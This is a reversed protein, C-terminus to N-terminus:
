KWANSFSIGVWEPTRAQFIWPRPLRTPQRRHPRVYDSVVSTVWCCCCYCNILMVPLSIQELSAEILGFGLFSWFPDFLKGHWLVRHDRESIGIGLSWGWSIKIELAWPPALYDINQTQSVMTWQHSKKLFLSFFVVVSKSQINGSQILSRWLFLEWTKCANRSFFFM